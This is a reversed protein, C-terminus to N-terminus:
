GDWWHSGLMVTLKTGPIADQGITADSDFVVGLARNPTQKFPVSCPILYGFGHVSLLNPNTYYLDVVMVIVAPTRALVSLDCEPQFLANLKSGSVTSIVHPHAM